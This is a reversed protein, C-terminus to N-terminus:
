SDRGRRGPNPPSRLEESVGALYRARRLGAHALEVHHVPSEEFLMFRHDGDMDGALEGARHLTGGDCGPSDVRFAHAHHVRPLDRDTQTQHHLGGAFGDQGPAGQVLHDRGGFGGGEVGPDVARQGREVDRDSPPAQAGSGGTQRPQDLQLGEDDEVFLSSDVGVPSPEAVRPGETGCGGPHRSKRPVLGHAHGDYVGITQGRSFVGPPAKLSEEALHIDGDQLRSRDDGGM